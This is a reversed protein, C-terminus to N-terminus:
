IDYSTEKDKIFRLQVIAEDITKAKIIHKNETARAAVSIWFAIFLITDVFNNGGMYQYNFWFTAAMIGFTQLDSLLSAIWGIKCIIIRNPTTM